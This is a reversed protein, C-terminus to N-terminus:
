PNSPEVPPWRRLKAEASTGHTIPPLASVGTLDLTMGPPPAWRLRYDPHAPGRLSQIWQRVRLYAPSDPTGYFPRLLARRHRFRAFRDDLGYQLLLSNEVQGRDILRAGLNEIVFGDLILFNTYDAPVSPRAPVLLRLGGGAQDGGHCQPTACNQRIIPWVFRRFEVMFAPDNEVLIDEKLADARRELRPRMYLTQELPRSLRFRQEFARGTIKGRSRQFRLFRDLVNNRFTIQARFDGERLEELRIRSIDEASVLWDTPIASGSAAAAPRTASESQQMAMEVNARMAIAKTLGPELALAADFEDRAIELLGRRFAWEGLRYHDEASGADTLGKRVQYEEQPPMPEIVAIVQSDLFRMEGRDTQVVYGNPTKTVTGTIERRNTLILTQEQARASCVMV